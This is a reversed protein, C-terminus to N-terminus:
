ILSTESLNRITLIIKILLDSEDDEDVSTQSLQQYLAFFINYSTNIEGKTIKTMSKEFPKFDGTITQDVLQNRDALFVFCQNCSQGEYIVLCNSFSYINKRNRYGNCHCHKEIKM